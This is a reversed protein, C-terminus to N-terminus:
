SRYTSKDVFERGLFTVTKVKGEKLWNYITQVTKGQLRAYDAVTFLNNPNIKEKKM